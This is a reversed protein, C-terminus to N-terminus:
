KTDEKALRQGLERGSTYELWEPSDKMFKKEDVVGRRYGEYDWSFVGKTNGKQVDWGDMIGRAEHVTFGIHSAVAVLGGGHSLLSDVRELACGGSCLKVASELQKVAEEKM